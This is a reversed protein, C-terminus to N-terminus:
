FSGRFALGFDFYLPKIMDISGLYYKVDGFAHLALSPDSFRQRNRYLNIGVRGGLPYIFKAKVQSGADILSAGGFVTFTPDFYTTPLIRFSPGAEAGIAAIMAKKGQYRIPVFWANPNFSLGIHENFYMHYNLGVGATGIQRREFDSKLQVIPYVLYFDILRINRVEVFPQAISATPLLLLLFIYIFRRM